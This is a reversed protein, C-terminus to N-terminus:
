IPRTGKCSPYRTCGWFYHGANRGRKALRSTMKSGCKPCKTSANPASTTPSSRGPQSPSAPANQRHTGWTTTSTSQQVPAARQPPQSGIRRPPSPPNVSPENIQLHQLDARAQAVRAHLKGLSSDEQAAFAAQRRARAELDNAGQLLTTRISASKAKFQTQIRGIEYRDATGEQASFVFRTELRARWELLGKSTVEGFGPVDLLRGRSIDAATDIGYSALTAQKAPGIGKIKAKSIEYNDLFVYLQRERRTERYKQVERAEDDKLRLLDNKAQALQAKLEDFEDAGARRQWSDLERLWNSQAEIFERRFPDADFSVTTKTAARVGWAIAAVWFIWGNPAAFLMAIGAIIALAGAGISEQKPEKAHKATETPGVSVTPFRPRLRDRPISQVREIRAWVAVLDFTAQGPDTAVPGSASHDIYPYFLVSGLQREM